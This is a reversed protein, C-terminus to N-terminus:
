GQVRESEHEKRLNTLAEESTKIVGEVKERSGGDLHHRLNRHLEDLWIRYYLRINGQIRKLEEIEHLLAMENVTAFTKYVSGGPYTWEIVTLPGGTSHEVVQVVRYKM